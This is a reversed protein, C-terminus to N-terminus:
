SVDEENLYNDSKVLIVFFFIIRFRERTKM